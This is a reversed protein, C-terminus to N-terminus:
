HHRSVQRAQRPRATTRIEPLVVADPHLVLELEGPPARLSVTRSLAQYGIRRLELRVSDGSLGRLLFRGLSDTLTRAEPARVEVGPIPRSDPDRVTGRLEVGQGTVPGLPLLCCAVPLLFKM